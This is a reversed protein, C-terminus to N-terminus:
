RVTELARVPRITVLPKPPDCYFNSRIADGHTAILKAANVRSLTAEGYLRFREAVLSALLQNDNHMM